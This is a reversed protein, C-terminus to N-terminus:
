KNRSVTHLFMHASKTCKRLKDQDLAVQLLQDRELSQERLRSCAAVAGLRQPKKKRTEM